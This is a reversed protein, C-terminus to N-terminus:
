SGPELWQLCHAALVSEEDTPVVRIEINSSDLSILEANQHNMSPNIKAGLWHCQEIIKERIVAAHEGVGGTFIIQELGQLAAALSGIERGARYCFLDIAQTAEPASSRLLTTMDHSIGSVGLWGSEKYVLHEIQAASMGETQMLYLLVGPDISGTRTAMPLGDAASFGMTTAVSMGNNVACLSAGAGLHAIITKNKLQKKQSLSHTIHEYSLGHFGYRRIGKETLKRPLAYETVLPSQQSHFMTDFCALQPIQPLLASCAEILAISYPEHLPALPILGKVQELVSPTIEQPKSFVSGGHVVRHSIATIPDDPAQQRLWTIIQQLAALHDGHEDTAENDLTIRDRQNGYSDTVTLLPSNLIDTVTLSYLPNLQEQDTQYLGCKLSSSGANITLINNM